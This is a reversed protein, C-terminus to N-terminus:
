TELCLSAERKVVVHVEQLSGAPFFVVLCGLCGCYSPLQIHYIEGREGDAGSENLVPSFPSLIAGYMDSLLM